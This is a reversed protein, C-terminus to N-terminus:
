EESEFWMNKLVEFQMRKLISLIFDNKTRLMQGTPQYHITSM